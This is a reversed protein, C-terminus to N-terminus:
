FSCCSLVALIPAADATTSTSMVMRRRYGVWGDLLRTIQVLKNEYNWRKADKHDGAASRVEDDVDAQGEKAIDRAMDV